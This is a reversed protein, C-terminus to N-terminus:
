FPKYEVLVFGSQLAEFRCAIRTDGGRQVELFSREDTKGLLSRQTPGRGASRPTRRQATESKRRQQGQRGVKASSSTRATLRESLCAAVALPECSSFGSVYGAWRILSSSTQDGPSDTHRPRRHTRAEERWRM